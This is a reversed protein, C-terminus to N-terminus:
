DTALGKHEPGFLTRQGEADLPDRDIALRLWARAEQHRGAAACAMGLQHPLKPDREGESTSARAVLHWLADHRGAAEIYPQAAGADGVLRLAAGSTARFRLAQPTLWAHAGPIQTHAVEKLGLPPSVANHWGRAALRKKV